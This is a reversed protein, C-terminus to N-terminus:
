SRPPYIGQLAICFKLALCPSINNHTTNPVGVVTTSQPAMQVLDSNAVNGQYANGPTSRALVRDPGPAQVEAPENSAQAQHTHATEPGKLQVTLAGGEDGVEYLSMGPGQGQGVPAKANLYPLRFVNKDDGGFRFELLSFLAKNQSVPLLQGSCEAWGKPAFDFSFVRIEAVFPDM